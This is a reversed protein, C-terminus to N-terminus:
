QLMGNSSTDSRMILYEQGIFEPLQAANLAMVKEHNGAPSHDNARNMSLMPVDPLFAPIEQSKHKLEKNRM